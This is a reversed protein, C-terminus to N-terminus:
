VLGYVIMLTSIPLHIFQNILPWLNPKILTSREHSLADMGSRIHIFTRCHIFPIEPSDAETAVRFKRENVKNNLYLMQTFHATLFPNKIHSFHNIYNHTLKM